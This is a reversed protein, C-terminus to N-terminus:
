QKVQPMPRESLTSKLKMGRQEQRSSPSIPTTMPPETDTHEEQKSSKRSSSYIQPPDTGKKIPNTKLHENWGAFAPSAGLARSIQTNTNSNNSIQPFTRSHFSM